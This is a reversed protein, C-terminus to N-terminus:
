DRGAIRGVVRVWRVVGSADRIFEVPNGRGNGSTVVARDPGYFAITSRDLMLQGNEVRVVNRSSLPPRTYTGVYPAPDPQTALIPADPMTENLGRHGIAHAPDLPLGELDRLLAREIDQILRWGGSHNTLIAFALNREPVIEVLLIHGLTGGHAATMVGNIRRLHWGLGMEDDTGAKKVRPTRMRELSARTLVREGDRNTGDGLHFSAYALVDALSMSVGGVTPTVSRTMPRSVAPRGDQTRHAVSFRYTVVDELRTFARTLGIPRFVLDRIATHIPQDTVAEIVRGLLGFGANNYSWVAGPPALQPWDSMRAVFRELTESGRDQASIQGEWGPTHTLLHWLAVDHTADADRVTFDPLYQKVPADLDLRGEEVLRMVATAAVTKSISALPFVTDSTIPQPDDVNTVGFGRTTTRSDKVIGFAVGPVGYEAMKQEILAALQEFKPNAQRPSSHIGPMLSLLVTATIAMRLCPSTLM